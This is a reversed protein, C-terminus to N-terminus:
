LKIPWARRLAKPTIARWCPHPSASPVTAKAVWASAPTSLAGLRIAAKCMSQSSGTARSWARPTTSAASSDTATSTAAWGWAGAAAHAATAAARWTRSWSTCTVGAPMALRRRPTALSRRILTSSACMRWPRLDSDVSTSPYLRWTSVSRSLPKTGATPMMGALAASAVTVPSMAASRAAWSVVRTSNCM